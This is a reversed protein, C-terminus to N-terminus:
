LIAVEKVTENTENCVISVTGGKYEAFYSENTGNHQKIYYECQTFSLKFGKSNSNASDNFQIDYTYTM